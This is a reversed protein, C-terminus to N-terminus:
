LLGGLEEFGQVGVVCGNRRGDGGTQYERIVAVVFSPMENMLRGPKWTRCEYHHVKVGGIVGGNPYRDRGM